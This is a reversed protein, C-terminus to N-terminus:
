MLQDNPPVVVREPSLWLFTGGDAPWPISNGESTLARCQMYKHQSLWLILPLFPCSILTGEHGNWPWCSCIFLGL